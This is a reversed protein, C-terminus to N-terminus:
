APFANWLVCQWGSSSKEFVSVSGTAVKLPHDHAFDAQAAPALLHPAFRIIGNSSVMLVTEDERIDAALAQWAKIIGPANVKWGPPPVAENNWRRMIEEGCAMIEAEDAESVDRGNRMLAERGLRLLVQREGCNEDPGYDIELFDPATEVPLALNMTELMLRATGQTRLLPAAYVRDPTYGSQLLLRGANRSREEEVLPLDTRRGVRTPTEGPRFTNGHRVIILRKGM